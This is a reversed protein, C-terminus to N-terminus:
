YWFRQFWAGGVCSEVPKLRCRGVLPMLYISESLGKDNQM